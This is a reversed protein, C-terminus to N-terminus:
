RLKGEVDKWVTNEARKTKEGCSGIIIGQREVIVM